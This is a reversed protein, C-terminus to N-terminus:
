EDLARLDEPLVHAPYRARFARLSERAADADGTRLLERIRAIWADRVEPSDATAPPVEDEEAEAFAPEQRVRAEHASRAAADADRQLASAAKAAPAQAPSPDPTAQQAMAAAPAAPAPAAADAVAERATPAPVAEDMFHGDDFARPKREADEPTAPRIAARRSPAGPPPEAPPPAPVNLPKPPIPRASMTRPPPKYAALPDEGAADAREAVPAPLPRLQWAIGFALALSGVFAFLVPWRASRHRARRYSHRRMPPVREDADAAAAHAAALIRADLAASPEAQAGTRALRRALAREEPTLAGNGDIDHDRPTM